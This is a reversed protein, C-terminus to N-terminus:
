SSSEVPSDVLEYEEEEEVRARKKVVEWEVRVFVWM